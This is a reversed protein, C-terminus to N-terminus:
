DFLSDSTPENQRERKKSTRARPTKAPKQAPTQPVAPAPVDANLLRYARVCSAVLDAKFRFCPQLPFGASSLPGDAFLEFRKGNHEIAGQSLRVHIVSYSFDEPCIVSLIAGEYELLDGIGVEVEGYSDRLTM